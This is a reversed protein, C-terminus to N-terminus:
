PRSRHNSDTKRWRLTLLSETRRATTPSRSTETPRASIISFNSNSVSATASGRAACRSQRGREARDTYQEGGVDAAEDASSLYVVDLPDTEQRGPTREVSYRFGAGRGNRLTRLNFPDTM